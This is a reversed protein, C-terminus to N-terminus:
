NRARLCRLARLTNWRSPKGRSEMRFFTRGSYEHELPWRGDPLRKSELLKFADNLRKDRIFRTTRIYDLGRLIDYHWRHPHSLKTFVPDIVRGTKDSKYMRHALMLEIARTEAQKLETVPGIRHMIAERVGDLVNFTTHFSSHHTGRVRGKRCNWGGDPMQEALIHHALAELEPKDIGFYAGIALFMGCMCTCGRVSLEDRKLQVHGEYVRRAGRVAPPNKPPLGMERLM